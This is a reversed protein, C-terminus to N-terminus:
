QEIVDVSAPPTFKFQGANISPNLKVNSFSITTTQGLNDNLVMMVPRGGNFSISLDKFNANKSKPTLVYYNKSPNPQSVSFSKAIQQPNGSLLLAPTDGVQNNTSQRTAQALDKDYVWMTSGNAVILQEAPSKTEWRFKNPRQLSATGSFTTTRASGQTTQSFNATMSKTNTLLQNLNAAPSNTQNSAYAPAVVSLGIVATLLLSHNM